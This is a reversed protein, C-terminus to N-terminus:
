EVNPIDSNPHYLSQLGHDNQPKNVDPYTFCQAFNHVALGLAPTKCSIAGGPVKSDHVGEM